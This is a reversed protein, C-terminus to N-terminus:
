PQTPPYSPPHSSPHTPFPPLPATTPAALSSSTAPHTTNGSRGTTAQRPEGNLTLGDGSFPTYTPRSTFLSSVYAQARTLLSPRADSGNRQPGNEVDTLMEAPLPLAIPALGANELTIYGPINAFPIGLRCFTSFLSLLMVTFHEFTLHPSSILSDSGKTYASHFTGLIWYM